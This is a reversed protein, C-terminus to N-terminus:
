DPWRGVWANRAPLYEGIRYVVHRDRGDIHFLANHWCHGLEYGQYPCAPGAHPWVELRTSIYRPDKGEYTGTLLEDTFEVQPDAKTVTIWTNDVESHRRIVLVGPPTVSFAALHDIETSIEFGCTGPDGSM